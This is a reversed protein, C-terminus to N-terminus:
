ANPTVEEMWERMEREWQDHLLRARVCSQYRRVEAVLLWEHPGCHYRQHAVHCAYTSDETPVVLGGIPAAWDPWRRLPM